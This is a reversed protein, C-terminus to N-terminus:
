SRDDHRGYGGHLDVTRPGGAGDRAHRERMQKLYAPPNVYRDMYDKAPMRGLDSPPIVVDEDWATMEGTERDIRVQLTESNGYKRRAATLIASELSEFLVEKSIERERHIMEIVGLLESGPPMGDAAM